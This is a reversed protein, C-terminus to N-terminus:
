GVRTTAYNYPFREINIRKKLKAGSYHVSKISQLWQFFISFCNERREIMMWEESNLAMLPQHTTIQKEDTMTATFRNM